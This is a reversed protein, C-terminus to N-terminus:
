KIVPIPPVEGPEIGYVRKLRANYANYWSQAKQLHRLAMSLDGREYAKSALAKQRWADRQDIRFAAQMVRLWTFNKESSMVTDACQNASLEIAALLNNYQKEPSAYATGLLVLATVIVAATILLIQLM